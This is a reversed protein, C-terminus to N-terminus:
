RMLFSILKFFTGLIQFHGARARTSRFIPNQVLVHSPVPKDSFDTTFCGDRQEELSNALSLAENLKAQLLKDPRLRPQVVFLRPPSSPDRDVLSVLNNSGDTNVNHDDKNINKNKNKQNSSSSYLSFSLFSFPVPTKTTTLSKLGSLRLSLALM